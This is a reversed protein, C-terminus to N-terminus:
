KEAKNRNKNYQKDAITIGETAKLYAFAVPLKKDPGVEIAVKGWDIDKQYNSVDIGYYYNSNLPIEM